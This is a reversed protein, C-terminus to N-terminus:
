ALGMRRTEFISRPTSNLALYARKDFIRPVAYDMVFSAMRGFASLALLGIALIFNFIRM